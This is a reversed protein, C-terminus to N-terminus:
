RRGWGAANLGNGPPSAAGEPMVADRLTGVRHRMTEIDHFQAGITIPLPEPLPARLAARFLDLTGNLGRELELLVASRVPVGAFADHLGHWVPHLDGDDVLPGGCRSLAAELATASRDFQDTMRTLRGSLASDGIVRDARRVGTAGHRCSLVLGNLLRRASRDPVDGDADGGALPETDASRLVVWGLWLAGVGILAAPIPNARVARAIRGPTGTGGDEMVDRVLAALGGTLPGPSLRDEIEEVVRGMRSRIDGIDREIDEPRRPPPHPAPPPADTPETM